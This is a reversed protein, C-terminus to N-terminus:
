RGAQPSEPGPQEEHRDCRGDPGCVPKAEILRAPESAPRRPDHASVLWVVHENHVANEEIVVEGESPVILRSRPTSPLSSPAERGLRQIMVRKQVIGLRM